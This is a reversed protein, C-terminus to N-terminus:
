SSIDIIKIIFYFFYLICAIDPQPHHKIKRYNHPDCQKYPPASLFRHTLFNNWRAFVTFILEFIYWFLLLSKGPAKQQQQGEMQEELLFM